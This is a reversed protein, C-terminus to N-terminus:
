FTCDACRLVVAYTEHWLRSEPQKRVVLASVTANARDHLNPETRADSGNVVIYLVSKNIYTNHVVTFLSRWVYRRGTTSGSIIPESQKEQELQSPTRM